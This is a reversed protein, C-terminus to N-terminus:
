RAIVKPVDVEPMIKFEKIAVLQQTAAVRGKHV